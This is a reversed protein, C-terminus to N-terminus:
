YCSRLPSLPAGIERLSEAYASNRSYYPRGPIAKWTPREKQASIASVSFLSSETAANKTLRAIWM